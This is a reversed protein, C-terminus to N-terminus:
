RFGKNYHTEQLSEFIQLLQSPCEHTETGIVSVQRQKLGSTTRQRLDAKPSGGDTARQHVHQIVIHVASVKQM